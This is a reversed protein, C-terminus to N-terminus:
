MNSYTEIEVPFFDNHLYRGVYTKVYVFMVGM